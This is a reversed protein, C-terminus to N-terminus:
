ARPNVLLVSLQNIVLGAHDCVLVGRPPQQEALIETERVCKVNKFSLSPPAFVGMENLNSWNHLLTSWCVGYVALTENPASEQTNRSWM